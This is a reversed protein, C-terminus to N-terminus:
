LLALLADLRQIQLHPLPSALPGPELGGHAPNLLVAQCGAKLAGVVDASHSDGVHLLQESAIGLRNCGMRFLDDVPKMRVGSGAALVFALRDGLGIRVPDVNGNTLGILPYKQGLKALLQLSSEPVRFHSRARIFEDMVARAAMTAEAEPLGFYLLGSHLTLLRLATPDHALMPHHALVRLKHHRWEDRGWAKTVPYHRALYMQQALEAAMIVPRNDYLTDDLDFSIAAIPKLRRFIQM